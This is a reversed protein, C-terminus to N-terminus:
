PDFPFHLFLLSFSLFPYFLLQIETPPPLPPTPANSSSTGLPLCRFLTLTSFPLLILVTWSACVGGTTAESENLWTATQRAARHEVATLMTWTTPLCAIDDGVFRCIFGVSSFGLFWNLSFFLTFKTGQSKWHLRGKVNVYLFLHILFTRRIGIDIEQKKTRETGNLPFIKVEAEQM